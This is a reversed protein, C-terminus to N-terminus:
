HGGGRMMEGAEIRVPLINAAPPLPCTAYPTFACPPNYARNFDVVLRKSGAAPGEADLFRGAGYTERGATADRFVFFFQRDDPSSVFPELSCARGAVTFRVVGPVLMSQAPGHASPVEIQRPTPYAEFTADLRFAPDVPFTEIGRFDKKAPSDLDKVRVGLTGAREIIYFRLSGLALVDPSGTADARLTREAVPAGALTVGSEPGTRVIVAGDSRVEFLGAVPPVDAGHLIVENGPASGFRNVGRHLWYLGVLTLWGDERTLAAIRAEHWRALEAAYAPDTTEVRKACALTSALLTGATMLLLGRRTTSRLASTM